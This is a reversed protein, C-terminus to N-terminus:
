ARKDPVVGFVVLGTTILATAAFSGWAILQVMWGWNTWTGALGYFLLYACAGANSVIGMWIPGPARQGHLAARLGFYYGVCLALYAWGLMRVFMLSPQSPIGVLELWERPFMILPVCWVLITAAIKFVLVKALNNM